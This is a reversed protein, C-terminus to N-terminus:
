KRKNTRTPKKINLIEFQDKSFYIAQAQRDFNVRVLNKKKCLADQSTWERFLISNAILADTVCIVKKSEDPKELLVLVPEASAASEQLVKYKDAALNKNKNSCASTNIQAESAELEKHWKSFAVSSPSLKGVYAFQGTPSCNPTGWALLPNLLFTVIILNKLTKM